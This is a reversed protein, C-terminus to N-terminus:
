RRGGRGDSNVKKVGQVEMLREIINKVDEAPINKTRIITPMGIQGDAPGMSHLERVLRDVQDFMQPSGAVILAPARDDVGIAVQNPKRNGAQAAMREGENITQAIERALTRVDVGRGVRIVKMGALGTAEVDLKVAMEEILNYDVTRARVILSNTSEDAMVLPIMDPSANSRGRVSQRAPDSFMQTLTAALAPANAHELKIIRPASGAGDVKKDMGKVVKEVGDIQVSSGSVILANMAQSAQIRVNGVLDERGSRGGRSEPRRLYESMIDVTEMADIFELPIVRLEEQTDTAPKDLQEIMAKIGVMDAKGAKVV